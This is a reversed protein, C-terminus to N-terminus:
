RGCVLSTLRIRRSLPAFSYAQPQLFAPTYSPRVHLSTGLDADFNGDHNHGPNGCNCAGDNM